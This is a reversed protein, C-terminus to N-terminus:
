ERSIALHWIMFPVPIHPPHPWPSVYGVFALLSSPSPPLNQLHLLPCSFVGPTPLSPSICFSQLLYLILHSHSAVTSEQPSITLAPNPYLSYFQFLLHELVQVLDIFVVSKLHLHSFSAERVLHPFGPPLKKWTPRSSLSSNLKFMYFQLHCHFIGTFFGLYCNPQCFKLSSFNDPGGRWELFM